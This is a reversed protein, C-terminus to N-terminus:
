RIRHEMLWNNGDNIKKVKMFGCKEYCRVARYNSVEPDLIIINADTGKSIFKIFDTVMNTGIGKNFLNPM